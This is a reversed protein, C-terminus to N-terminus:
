RWGGGLVQYMKVKAHLQQKKTEVLEMKSEIADRQTMLVEVYDARASKFLNISINISKNLADVQQAKFDYSKALNSMNAQQNVVETFAKLVTREYNYVSQIQRANASLYTAKIANRNVLPAVLAGAMNAIISQPSTVLFVPNFAEFGIGSTINLAPYFNAKAVKVDLKSALLDLEAQKIDTRNELLQSPIGTNLSDIVLDNFAQ